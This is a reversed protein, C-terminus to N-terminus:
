PAADQTKMQREIERWRRVNANHERLSNAFAHGGTGDAVFFLAPSDAPNLTAKIAHYGPNAIPTPPLGDIVYTNYPTEGELESRRIGRGLSRTGGTIGYIITPDSQLRMGRRLRNVFVAAVLPREEALSTEKEVISALILAEEPTNIPLDDARQAWLDALNKEQASMMRKLLANRAENSQFFYTEPALMGEPVDITIEGTLAPEQRLLTLVHHVSVGEPVTIKRQVVDGSGIIHLVEALSAGKPILYEGAKAVVDHKRALISIAEPAGIIAVDKVLNKRRLDLAISKLTKGREVIVYTDQTTPGPAHIDRYIVGFMVLICAVAVVSLTLFSSLMQRM